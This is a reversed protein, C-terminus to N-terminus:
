ASGKMKSEIYLQIDGHNLNDLHIVEQQQIRSLQDTINPKDRSTILVHLRGGGATLLKQLWAAVQGIENCEHLADIILFADPFYQLAFNCIEQVDDWSPLTAGSGCNKYATM